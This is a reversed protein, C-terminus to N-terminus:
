RRFKKQEFFNDKFINILACLFIKILKQSITQQTFTELAYTPFFEKMASKRLIKLLEGFYIKRKMKQDILKYIKPFSDQMLLFIM